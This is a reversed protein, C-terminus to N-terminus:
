KPKGFESLFEQFLLIDEGSPFILSFSVSIISNQVQEPEEQYLKAKFEESKDIISIATGVLFREARINNSEGRISIIPLISKRYFTWKAPIMM